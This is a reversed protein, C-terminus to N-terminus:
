SKIVEQNVGGIRTKLEIFRDRGLPKMDTLEDNTGIVEQNVGGIRTKLEIFRDRGLPKM